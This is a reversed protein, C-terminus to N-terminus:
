RSIAARGAADLRACLSEAAPLLAPGMATLARDTAALLHHERVAKLDPVAAWRALGAAAVAPEGIAVVFDPNRALVSELGVAPAMEGLDDFVNRYGCAELADSLLQPRGLVFIPQDWVQLLVTPRTAGAHARRLSAIRVELAAAGGAAVSSTGALLGLRRVAAPMDDLREMRHHYIPLGLRALQALRADATGGGWAVVVDPHLALIREVDFRQSDGIRPIQQAAAPEDSFDSTGVVQAGAGAAFLM